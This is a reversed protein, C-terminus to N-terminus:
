SHTLSITSFATVLVIGGEAKARGDKLIRQKIEEMPNPTSERDFTIKLLPISKEMVRLNTQSFKSINCNLIGTRESKCDSRM